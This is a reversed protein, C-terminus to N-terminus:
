TGGALLASVRGATEFAPLDNVLIPVHEAKAKALTDDAPKRGQVLIIGALDKLVAVAVINVHVQMTIWVNGARANAIVDSLLDGAYGGTVDQQLRGEGSCVACQLADVIGKLKM